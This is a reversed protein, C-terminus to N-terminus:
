YELLIQVMFSFPPELSPFLIVTRNLSYLSCLVSILSNSTSPIIQITREANAELAMNTAPTKELSYIKSNIEGANDSKKIINAIANPDYM